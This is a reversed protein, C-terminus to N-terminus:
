VGYKDTYGRPSVLKNNKIFTKSNGIILVTSMNIQEFDLEDLTTVMYEENARDCNKVWGCALNGRANKFQEIAYPLQTVRKKSRPNYIACVFDGINVAEIRKKILEWPTLLDSMSLLVLDDSVPAGLKASASLASTIGPIIEISDTDTSLEYVLSAMSYLSADGGCVLAVTHGSEAAEIAKKVRAMEGKMGNTFVESSENILQSVQNVYPEYGCVFSAKNIAESAKPATLTVEGPGNGVVFIKGKNDM